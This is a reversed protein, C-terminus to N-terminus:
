HLPEISSGLLSFYLQLRQECSFIPNTRAPTTSSGLTNMLRRECYNPKLSFIVHCIKRLWKNLKLLRYSKFQVIILAM